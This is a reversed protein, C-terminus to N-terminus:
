YTQIDRLFFTQIFIETKTERNDKSPQLSMIRNNIYINKKNILDIERVKIITLYM